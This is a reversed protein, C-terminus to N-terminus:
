GEMFYITNNTFLQNYHEFFSLAKENGLILAHM